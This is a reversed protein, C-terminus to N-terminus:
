ANEDPTERARKAWAIGRRLLEYFVPLEWSGREIQPYWKLLPQMDFHGRCHGLTLYLVGGKGVDKLYFVPHRTRPWADEVFGEARGEYETELLVHLNGFTKMLYLEDKADFSDIGSVLPHWPDAVTVRYPAIPPHAIFM